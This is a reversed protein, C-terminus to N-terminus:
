HILVFDLAQSEMDSHCKRKLVQFLATERNKLPFATWFRTSLQIDAMFTKEVYM